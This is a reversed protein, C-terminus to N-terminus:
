SPSFKDYFISVREELKYSELMELAADIMPPPGCLYADFGAIDAGLRAQVVDTVLGSECDDPVPGPDESLAPYFRLDALTEGLRRIEDLYFLDTAKRAGYFFRVPRPDGTEALHQLVGWLPAMGAGGGILLLPRTGPRVWFSGHPARLNIPDGVSAASLWESFVGGPIVKIMFDAKASESPPNSMSYARWADTGPGNVEAFQGARFEFTEALDVSLLRIDTTLSRIESIRGPLDRPPIGSSVEELDLGEMEITLDSVAFASCLLTFGQEREFESISYASEIELDAEGELIQAKCTGCNGKRCGYPLVLGARIAAGLVSEEESCEFEVGVPLVTVSHSTM